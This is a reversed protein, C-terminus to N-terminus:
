RSAENEDSTLWDGQTKICTLSAEVGLFYAHRLERLPVNSFAICSIRVNMKLEQSCKYIFSQNLTLNKKRRKGAEFVDANRPCRLCTNM